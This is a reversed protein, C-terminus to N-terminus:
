HVFNISRYTDFGNFVYSQPIQFRHIFIKGIKNTLIVM